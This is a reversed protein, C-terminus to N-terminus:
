HTYHGRLQQVHNWQYAGILSRFSIKELSVYIMKERNEFYSHYNKLTMILKVFDLYQFADYIEKSYSIRM